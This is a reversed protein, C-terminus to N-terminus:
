LGSLRDLPWYRALVKGVIRDSRVPGFFRSDASSFRDDGVVFYEDKGLLLEPMSGALPLDRTWGDVPRAGAIQYDRGSVEYETLFHDDGAAKVQVVFGEMRVADGPGAVVRKIVPSDDPRAAPSGLRQLTFFRAFSDGFREYWARSPASPLRLLIVDGREPGRLTHRRGSLPNLIGYASPAVIVRDRPELTPRMSASGVIWTKVAYSSFLEFSVFVILLYKAM